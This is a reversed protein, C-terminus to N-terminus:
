IPTWRLKFTTRNYCVSPLDPVTHETQSTHISPVYSARNREVKSRLTLRRVRQAEEENSHRTMTERDESAEEENSHRNMTERHESAEEENSHRNMTERDESAEEENSHRTM